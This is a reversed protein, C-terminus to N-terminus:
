IDTRHGTTIGTTHVPISTFHHKQRWFYHKIWYQQVTEGCLYCIFLSNSHVGFVLVCRDFDWILACKLALLLNMYFCCWELISECWILLELLSAKVESNLLFQLISLLLFHDQTIQCMPLQAWEMIWYIGIDTYFMFCGDSESLLLDRLCRLSHYQQLYVARLDTSVFLFIYLERSCHTWHM